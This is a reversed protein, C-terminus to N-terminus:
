VANSAVRLRRVCGTDSGAMSSSWGECTDTIGRCEAAGCADKNDAILYDKRSCIYFGNPERALKADTYFGLSDVGWHGDCNKGSNAPDEDRLVVYRTGSKTWGTGVSIVTAGRVTAAVAIQLLAPLTSRHVLVMAPGHDTEKRRNRKTQSSEEM